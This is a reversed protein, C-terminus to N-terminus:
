LVNSLLKDLEKIDGKMRRVETHMVLVWQASKPYVFIFAPVWSKTKVSVFELQQIQGREVVFDLDNDIKIKKSWYGQLFSDDSLKATPFDKELRAFGTAYRDAYMEIKKGITFQYTPQKSLFVERLTWPSPIKSVSFGFDTTLTSLKQGVKLTPYDDDDDEVEAEEILGSEVLQEEVNLLLECDCGGGHERLWELIAPINKQRKKKLFAETLKLTRDCSYETEDLYDFLEKFVKAKMPLDKEEIFDM